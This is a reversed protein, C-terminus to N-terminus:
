LDTGKMRMEDGERWMSCQESNVSDCVSKKSKNELKETSVIRQSINKEEGKKSTHLVSSGLMKWGNM